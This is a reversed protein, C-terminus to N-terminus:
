ISKLWNIIGSIFSNIGNLLNNFFNSSSSIQVGTTPSSLSVSKPVVDFAQYSSYIQSPSTWNSWKGNSFSTQSSLCSVGAVYVGSDEPTFTFINNYDPTTMNVVSSEYVYTKTSNYFVYSACFTNTVNDVGAVWKNSIYSAPIVATANIHLTTNVYTLNEPQLGSVGIAFPLNNVM